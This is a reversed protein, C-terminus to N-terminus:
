LMLNKETVNKVAYDFPLRALSRDFLLHEVGGMFARLGLPTVLANGAEQSTIPYRITLFRISPLLLPSLLGSFSQIVPRLAVASAAVERGNEKYHLICNGYDKIAEGYRRMESIGVIGWKIDAIALELKHLKEITRLLRVNFTAIHIDLTFKNIKLSDHDKEGM